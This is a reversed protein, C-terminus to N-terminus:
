PSNPTQAPGLGALAPLGPWGALNTDALFGRLGTECGRVTGVVVLLESEASCNQVRADLLHASLVALELAMLEAEAAGWSEPRPVPVIDDVSGPFEPLRDCPVWGLFTTTRELGLPRVPRAVPDRRPGGHRIPAHPDAGSPQLPALGDVVEEVVWRDACGAPPRRVTYTPPSASDLPKSLSGPGLVLPGFPILIRGTLMVFPEVWNTHLQKAVSAVRVPADHYRGDICARSEERSTGPRCRWSDRNSCSRGRASRPVRRAYRRPAHHTNFRRGDRNSCATKSAGGWRCDSLDAGRRVLKPSGTSSGGSGACSTSGRAEPALHLHLGGWPAKRLAGCPRELGHPPSARINRRPVASRVWPVVTHKAPRAGSDEGTSALWRGGLGIVQFACGVGGLAGAADLLWGRDSGAGGCWILSGPAGEVRAPRVDSSSGRLCGM